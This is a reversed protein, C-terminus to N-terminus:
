AASVRYAVRAAEVAATVEESTLWTPADMSVSARSVAWAGGTWRYLASAQGSDAAYFFVRFGFLKGSVRVSAISIDHRGRVVVPIRTGTKAKAKAASPACSPCMTVRRIESCFGISMGPTVWAGCICSSSFKATM